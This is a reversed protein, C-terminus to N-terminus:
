QQDTIVFLGDAALVAHPDHDGETIVCFPALADRIAPRVQGASVYHTAPVSANASAGIVLMGDGGPIAAAAARAAVVDAAQCLFTCNIDM